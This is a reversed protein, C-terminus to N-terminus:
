VAQERSYTIFADLKDYAKGSYITDLAEEYGTQRSNEGLDQANQARSLAVLAGANLAVAQSQAPAAKGKLLRQLWAANEAPEGGRIEEISHHEFPQWQVQTIEGALLIMVTTPAHIAIEDLGGGHVVLAKDVGLRQLTEAMPRCLEPKYVGTLQVPPRAPNVLPGLVNFITRVGLAKRAAAAHKMGPHYLPALLFCFGIDDLSRRSLEAPMELNAGLSMLVDASGCKSSVSRNGHKAVPLGMAATVLSAATSINYTGQEDGGTGVLDAFLYDPRPFPRAAALLARAAESIDGSTEGRAKLDMLFKKIEDLALEGKIIKDFYMQIM